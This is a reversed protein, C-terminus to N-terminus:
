FVHFYVTGCGNGLQSLVSKASEGPPPRVALTDQGPPQRQLSCGDVAVTWSRVTTLQRRIQSPFQKRRSLSTLPKRRGAISVVTVSRRGFGRPWCTRRCPSSGNVAVRLGIPRRLSCLRHSADLVVLVFHRRWHL